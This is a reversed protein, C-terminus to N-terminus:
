IHVGLSTSFEVAIEFLKIKGRVLSILQNQFVWQKDQNNGMNLEAKQESFM